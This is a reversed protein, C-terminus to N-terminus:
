PQRIMSVYVRLPLIDQGVNVVAFLTVSGTFDSVPSIGRGPVCAIQFLLGRSFNAVFFFNGLYLGAYM